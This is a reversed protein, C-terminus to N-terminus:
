KFLSPNSKRAKEVQELFEPSGMVMKKDRVLHEFFEYRTKINSPVVSPETQKPEAGGTGAPQAQKTPSPKSLFESFERNLLDTAKIPNMDPSNDFIPDGEKTYFRFQGDVEKVQYDKSLTDKIVSKVRATYRQKEAEGLTDPASIQLSEISSELFFDRKAKSTSETLESILAEKEQLQTQLAKLRASTDTDSEKVSPAVEKTGKEALIQKIFATTQIKGDKTYGIEALTADVQTMARGYAKDQITKLIDEPIDAETIFKSQPTPAPELAPEPAPDVIPEVVPETINSM